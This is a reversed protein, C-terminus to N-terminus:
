ATRVGQYRILQGAAAAVLASAVIALYVDAARFPTILRRSAVQVSPLASRPQPLSPAIGSSASPVPVNAPGSGGIPPSLTNGNSTGSAVPTDVPPTSSTGTGTFDPVSVLDSFARAFGIAIVTTARSPPLPGVGVPVTPPLPVVPIPVAPTETLMKVEIGPAIIGNRTKQAAQFSLTLGREKVAALAPNSAIAEGVPVTTGLVPVVLKGDVIELPLGMISAGTLTLSSSRKLLGASTREATARSSVTGLQLVTMFKLGTVSNTAEAVVGGSSTPAVDAKASVSGAPTVTGDLGGNASAHAQGDPASAALQYGGSSMDAPHPHGSDAVVTLPLDIAGSADSGPYVVAAVSRAQGLSDATAQASPSTSETGGGDLIPVIKPDRVDLRMAASTATASYASTAGAGQVSLGAGSLLVVIGVVVTRAVLRAGNPLPSVDSRM